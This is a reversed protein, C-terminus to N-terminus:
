AGGLQSRPRSQGPRDLDTFDDTKGNPKAPATIRHPLDRSEEPIGLFAGAVARGEVAKVLAVDVRALDTLQQAVGCVAKARVLEADLDAGPKADRLAEMQAFLHNKLDVLNNKM